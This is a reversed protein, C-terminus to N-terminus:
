RSGKGRRDVHLVICRRLDEARFRRSGGLKVSELEGRQLLVYLKSKKCGLVACAEDVTMLTEISAAQKAEM